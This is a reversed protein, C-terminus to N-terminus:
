VNKWAEDIQASPLRRMADPVKADFAADASQNRRPASRTRGMAMMALTSTIRTGM